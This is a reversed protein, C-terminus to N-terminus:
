CENTPSNKPVLCNQIPQINRKEGAKCNMLLFRWVWWKLKGILGDREKSESRIPKLGEQNDM